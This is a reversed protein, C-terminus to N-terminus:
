GESASLGRCPDVGDVSPRLLITMPSFRHFAADFRLERLSALVRGDRTPDDSPALAVADAVRGVPDIWLQMALRYRGPRIAASACLTRQIAGQM